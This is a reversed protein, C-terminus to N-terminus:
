IKLWDFQKQPTLISTKQQVAFWYLSIVANKKLFKLGLDVSKLNSSLISKIWNM